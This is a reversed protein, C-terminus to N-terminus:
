WWRREKMDLLDEVWPEAGPMAMYTDPFHFGKLKEKVTPWDKVGTRRTHLVFRRTCWRKDTDESPYAPGKCEEWAGVCLAWLRANDYQELHAYGEPEAAVLSSAGEIAKLSERLLSFIGARKCFLEQVTTTTTRTQAIEYFLLYGIILMRQVQWFLHERTNSCSPCTHSSRDIAHVEDLHLLLDVLRTKLTTSQAYVWLQLETWLGPEPQQESRMSFLWSVMNMDIFISQLPGFSLIQDLRAAFTPRHLDIFDQAPQCSVHLARPLWDHVDIASKAFRMVSLDNNQSMVRILFASTLDEGAEHDIRREILKGLADGHLAAEDLHGSVMAARCLFFITELLSCSTDNGSQMRIRLAKLSRGRLKLNEREDEPKPDMKAMLM